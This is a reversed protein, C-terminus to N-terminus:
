AVYSSHNSEAISLGLHGENCPTAHVYFCAFRKKAVHIVEHFYNKLSQPESRCDIMTLIKLRITKYAESSYSDAVLARLLGGYQNWRSVGFQKYWTGCETSLLHHIDDLLTCSDQIGLSTLLTDSTALGDGFIV